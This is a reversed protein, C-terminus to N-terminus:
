ATVSLASRLAAARPTCISSITALQFVLLRIDGASSGASTGFTCILTTVMGGALLPKMGNARTIWLLSIVM